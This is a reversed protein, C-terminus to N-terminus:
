ASGTAPIGGSGPVPSLSAAGQFEVVVLYDTGLTVGDATLNDFDSNWFPTDFVATNTFMDYWQSVGASNENITPKYELQSEPPSISAGADVNVNNAAGLYALVVKGTSGNGGVLDADGAHGGLGGEASIVATSMVTVGQAGFVFVDGGAGGGGPGGRGSPLAGPTVGTIRDANEDTGGPAGDAGLDVVQDAVAFTSGGNGGDAVISGGISVQGAALIWLGGGGGGGGGGGADGNNISSDSNTDECGGGGGGPGGSM